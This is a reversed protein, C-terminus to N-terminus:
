ASPLGPMELLSTIEDLVTDCDDPPAGYGWAAHIYDIKARRAAEYDADMDGIYITADPDTRTQAMAVLLYDPAPKGRYRADPTEVADFEVPLKALIAGTRLRDKSTVVGLKLGRAKLATLTEEAGPYFTALELANMSAIRFVREIEDTKEHIGLLDLIERFPRGILAFYDAFPVEIGNRRCAEAWALEMNPRSDILVGDLDFLILHKGTESM